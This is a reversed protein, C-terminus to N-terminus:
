AAANKKQLPWPISYKHLMRGVTDRDYRINFEAFIVDAISSTSWHSYGWVESPDALIQRLRERQVDNIKTPRGTGRRKKLDGSLLRKKWRMTTTRSVGYMKAIAAQTVGARLQAAAALRRAELEDRNVLM